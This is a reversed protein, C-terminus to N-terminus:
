RRRRWEPGCGGRGGNAQPWRQWRRPHQRRPHRWRENGRVRGPFRHAPGHAPATGPLSRVCERPRSRRRASGSRPCPRRGIAVATLVDGTCTWPIGRTTECGLGFCPTLGPDTGFRIEPVHCNMAGAAFDGEQDLAELAAALRLTRDLDDEPGPEMEFSDFVRQRWSSTLTDDVAAYHRLVDDPTLSVVEIGLSRGLDKDDADVCGYGDLPRGIRALRATRLRTAVAAARLRDAVDAAAPENGAPSVVLEFARQARRLMNTIMPTGVTAGLSTIDGANFDPPIVASRQVAWIVVPQPLHDLLGLAYSPPVAMSQLVLIADPERDAAESACRVGEEPSDVLGQWVVDIKQKGLLDCASQLLNERDNRFDAGVSSEWFDWYPVVVAARPAAKHRYGPEGQIPITM